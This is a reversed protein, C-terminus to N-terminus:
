ATRHVGPPDGIVVAHFGAKDDLLNCADSDKLAALLENHDPTASLKVVIDQLTTAVDRAEDLSVCQIAFPLPPTSHGCRIFPSTYWSIILHSCDESFLVYWDRYVGPNGGGIIAWYFTTDSMGCLIHPRIRVKGLGKYAIVANGTLLGM